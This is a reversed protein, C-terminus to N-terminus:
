RDLGSLFSTPNSFQCGVAWFSFALRTSQLKARLIPPPFLLIGRTSNLHPLKWIGALLHRFEPELQTHCPFVTFRRPRLRNESLDNELGLKLSRGLFYALALM